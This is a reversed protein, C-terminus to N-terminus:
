ALDHGAPVFSCTDPAGAGEDPLEAVDSPPQRRLRPDAALLDRDGHHPTRPDDLSRTTLDRQGVVQRPPATLPQGLDHLLLEARLDGELVIDVQRREALSPATEALVDVVEH